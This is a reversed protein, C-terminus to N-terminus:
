WCRSAGSELMLIAKEVSWITDTDHFFVKVEFGPGKDDDRVDKLIDIYKVTYENDYDWLNIEIHRKYFVVLLSEFNGSELVELTDEMSYKPFYKEIYKKYFVVEEPESYDKILTCVATADDFYYETNTQHQLLWHAFRVCDSDTDNGMIQFTWVRKGGDRYDHRKITEM